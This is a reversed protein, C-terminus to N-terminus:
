RGHLAWAPTTFKLQMDDCGVVVSVDGQCQSTARALVRQMEAVDANSRAAYGVLDVRLTGQRSDYRVRQALAAGAPPPRSGADSAPQGHASLRDAQPCVMSPEPNFSLHPLLDLLDASRRRLLESSSTLGRQLCAQAYAADRQLRTLDVRCGVGAMLWKFDVLGLLADGWDTSPAPRPQAATRHVFRTMISTEQDDHIAPGM